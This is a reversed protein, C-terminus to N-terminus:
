VGVRDGSNRKWLTQTRASRIRLASDATHMSSQSAVGPSGYAQCIEQDLSASAREVAQGIMESLCTLSPGNSFSPSSLRRIEATTTGLRRLGRLSPCGTEHHGMGPSLRALGEQIAFKHRAVRMCQM